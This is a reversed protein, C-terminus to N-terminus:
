IGLKALPEPPPEGWGADKFEQLLSPDPVISKYKMDCYEGAIVRAISIHIAEKLHETAQVTVWLGGSWPKVISRHQDPLTYDGRMAWKTLYLEFTPIYIVTFVLYVIMTEPNGFGRVPPSIIDCLKAESAM